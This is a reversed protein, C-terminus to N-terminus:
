WNGKERKGHRILSPTCWGVILFQNKTNGKYEPWSDVLVHAPGVWQFEHQQHKHVVRFCFCDSPLSLSCCITHNSSRSLYERSFSMTSFVFLCVFLCVFLGGGGGRFFLHEPFCSFKGRGLPGHGLFQACNTDLVFHYMKIDTSQLASGNKFTWSLSKTIKGADESCTMNVLSLLTKVLKECDCQAAVKINELRHRYRSKLGPM